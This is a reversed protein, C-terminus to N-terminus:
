AAPGSCPDRLERKTLVPTDADPAFAASSDIRKPDIRGRIVGGVKGSANIRRLRGDAGLKARAIRETKM